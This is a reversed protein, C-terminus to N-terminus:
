LIQEDMKSMLDDDTFLCCDCEYLMILQMTSSKISQESNKGHFNLSPMCHATDSCYAKLCASGQLCTKNIFLRTTTLFGNRQQGFVFLYISLYIFIFLHNLSM